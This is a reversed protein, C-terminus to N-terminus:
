FPCDDQSAEVVRPAPAPRLHDQCRIEYREEYDEEGGLWADLFADAEAYTPLAAMLKTHAGLVADTRPCYAPFLVVVACLGAEVAAAVAARQACETEDANFDMQSLAFANQLENMM